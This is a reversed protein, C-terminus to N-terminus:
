FQILINQHMLGQCLIISIRLTCLQHMLVTIQQLLKLTKKIYFKNFNNKSKKLRDKLYAYNFSNHDQSRYTLNNKTYIKNPPNQYENINKNKERNNNEQKKRNIISKKSYM